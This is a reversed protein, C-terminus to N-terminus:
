FERQLLPCLQCLTCVKLQEKIKGALIAYRQRPESRKEVMELKFICELVNGEGIDFNLCGCFARADLLCVFSPKEVLTDPASVKDLYKVAQSVFPDLGYKFDYNVIREVWWMSILGDFLREFVHVNLNQVPLLCVQAGLHYVVSCWVKSINVQVPAAVISYESAPTVSPPQPLQGLQLRNPEVDLPYADKVQRSTQSKSVSFRALLELSLPNFRLPTRFLVYLFEAAADPFETEFM